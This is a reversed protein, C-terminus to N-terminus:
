VRDYNPAEQISILSHPHSEVLGAHSIRVFRAKHRLEALNAAGVYGMGSRIGGVIQFLVDALPGKCPVCGEVGEPVLKGNGDQGSGYRDHGLGQMAGLSGMGRYAKYPVNGVRIVEGPSEDVGALMGGLMVARAGAALVKVADGSYRLGGDAIIPVGKAQAAEACARVAALQPMGVGAIIRTTCISGAGVGVKVVDAGAEILARTGEATAVNGAMLPLDPFRERAAAVAELVLRSHGHATDIVIADVGAEVLATLRDEWDGIVGLAAAVLLRGEQDTIAHPSDGVETAKVHVVQAAQNWMTLNRHIVGLGGERALAAALRGETVTDMAASLIPVNLRLDPHLEVSTDAEAPLVASYGPVLLVDDFTLALEGWDKVM